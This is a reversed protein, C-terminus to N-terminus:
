QKSFNNPSNFPRRQIRQNTNYDLCTTEPTGPRM